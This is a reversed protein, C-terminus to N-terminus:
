IMTQWDPAQIQDTGDINFETGMIRVFDRFSELDEQIPAAIPLNDYPAFATRGLRENDLFRHVHSGDIKAPLHSLASHKRAMM